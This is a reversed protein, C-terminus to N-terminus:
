LRNVYTVKKRRPPRSNFVVGIAFAAPVNTDRLIQSEKLNKKVNKVSLDYYGNMYKVSTVYCIVKKILRNQATSARM